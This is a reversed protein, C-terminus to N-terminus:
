DETKSGFVKDFVAESDEEENYQPRTVTYKKMFKEYINSFLNQIGFMKCAHGRFFVDFYLGIKDVDRLEEDIEPTPRTEEWKQILTGFVQGNDFTSTTNQKPTINATNLLQQYTADIDKTNGGNKAVKNRELKKLSLLEFISEQAKTSCEYRTVWDQYENELFMLDENNYSSGFRKRAAKVTKQVIKLDEDNDEIGDDGFFSDDWTKGQWQPLSQINVIFTAWPSNRVKEGADDMAGKICSEYLVDDYPKNMLRCMKQVSEKTENPKDRDSKRQEVQKLICRKCMPFRGTAYEKHIYFGTKADQWTNCVPCLLLENNLIKNLSDAVKYYESRVNALGMKKIENEDLPPKITAM